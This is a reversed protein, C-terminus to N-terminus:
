VFHQSNRSQKLSYWSAAECPLSQETYNLWDNQWGTLWDCKGSKKKSFVAALHNSVTSRKRSPLPNSDWGRNASNLNAVITIKKLV